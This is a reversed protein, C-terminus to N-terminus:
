QAVLRVELRRKSIVYYEQEIRQGPISGKWVRPKAETISVRASQYGEKSITAVIPRLLRKSDVFQGGNQDFTTADFRFKCPTAACVQEEQDGELLVRAGGPSTLILIDYKSLSSINALLSKCTAIGETPRGDDLNYKQADSLKAIADQFLRVAQKLDFSSQARQMTQMGDRFRTELEQRSREIAAVLKQAMLSCPLPKGNQLAQMAQDQQNKASLAEAQSYAITWVALMPEIESLSKVANARLAGLRQREELSGVSAHDVAEIAQQYLRKSESLPEPIQDQGSARCQRVQNGRAALADWPDPVYEQAIAPGCAILGIVPVIWAGVGQQAIWEAKSM